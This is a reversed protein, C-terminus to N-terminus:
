EGVERVSITCERSFPHDGKSSAGLWANPAVTNLSGETLIPSDPIRIWKPPPAPDMSLALPLAIKCYGVSVTDPLESRFNLRCIDEYM